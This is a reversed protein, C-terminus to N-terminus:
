EPIVFQTGDELFQYDNAEITEIIAEKSTLYKYENKLITKYDECIDNLFDSELDQLKGESDKSEYNESNEDMYEAFIPEWEAMFKTATKFTECNEGHENLINQAVENASLLFTGRCFNARDLDFETIELGINKADEYTSNWWEFSVNIDWKKEIVKQQVEPSLEKFKYVTVKKEPITIVKPM